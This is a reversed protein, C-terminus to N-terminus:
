RGTVNELFQFEFKDPPMEQALKVYGGFHSGRPALVVAKKRRDWIDRILVMFDRDGSVIVFTSIDNDGHLLRTARSQLEKDVIERKTEVSGPPNYVGFGERGFEHLAISGAKGFALCHESLEGFQAAYARIAQAAARYDQNPINEVDVFVAVKGVLTQRHVVDHIQSM